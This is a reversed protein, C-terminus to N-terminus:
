NLMNDFIDRNHELHSRFGKLDFVGRTKDEEIDSVVSNKGIGQLKLKM